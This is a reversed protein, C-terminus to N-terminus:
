RNENSNGTLLQLQQLGEPTLDKIIDLFDMDALREVRRILLPAPHSPENDEFYKRAIALAKFAETRTRLAAPLGASPPQAAAPATTAAEDAEENASPSALPDEQRLNAAVFREIRTVIDTVTELDPWYESTLRDKFVADIRNLANHLSFLGDFRQQNREQEEAIMRGLQELSTVPTSEDGLTKGSLLREAQSFTVTGIPTDLLASHRLSRVIGQPDSLAAVANTRFLPDYEGDIHLQPHLAEWHAELWSAMLNLSDAFGTLGHLQLAARCVTSLVRLDRSSELLECGAKFVNAWEPEQAPIINQGIQREERATSLAAFATYAPSYEMDAGCTSGDAVAADFLKQSFISDM